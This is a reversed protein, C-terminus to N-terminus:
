RTEVAEGHPRREPTVYETFVHFCDIDDVVSVIREGERQIALVDEHVNWRPVRHYPM